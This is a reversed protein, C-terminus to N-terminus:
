RTLVSARGSIEDDPEDFLQKEIAFQEPAESLLRKVEVMSRWYRLLRLTEPDDLDPSSIRSLLNDCHAQLYDCLLLFGRDDVLGAVAEREEKTVPGQGPARKKVAM